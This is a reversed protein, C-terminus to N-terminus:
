IMFIFSNLKENRLFGSIVSRATLFQWVHSLQVGLFSTASILAHSLRVQLTFTAYSQVGNMALGHRNLCGIRWIQCSESCPWGIEVPYWLFKTALLVLAQPFKYTCTRIQMNYLPPMDVLTGSFFRRLFLATHMASHFLKWKM